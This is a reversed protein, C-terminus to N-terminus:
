ESAFGEIKRKLVQIAKGRHSLLAKDDANM